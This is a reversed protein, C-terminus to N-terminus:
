QSNSVSWGVFGTNERSPTNAYIKKEQGSIRYQPMYMQTGDDNVYNIVYVNEAATIQRAGTDFAIYGNIDGNKIQMCGDELKTM